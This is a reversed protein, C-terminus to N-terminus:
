VWSIEGTKPPPSRTTQPYLGGPRQPHATFSYNNAASAPSPQALQRILVLHSHNPCLKLQHSELLQVGCTLDRSVAARSLWIIATQGTLSCLLLLPVGSKELRHQLPLATETSVKITRLIKLHLHGPTIAVQCCVTSQNAPATGASCDDKDENPIGEQHVRWQRKSAFTHGFLWM